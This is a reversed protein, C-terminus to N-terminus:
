SDFGRGKSKYRLAEVLRAVLLTGRLNVPLQEFVDTDFPPV